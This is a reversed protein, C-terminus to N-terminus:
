IIEVKAKYSVKFQYADNNAIGTLDRNTIKEGNFWLDGKSYYDSIEDVQRHYYDHVLYDGSLGTDIDISECDDSLDCIFDIYIELFAWIDVIGYVKYEAKEVSLNTITGSSVIIVPELVLWQTGIELSDVRSSLEAIDYLITGETEVPNIQADLADVQNQLGTFGDLLQYNETTSIRCSITKGITGSSCWEGVQVSFEGDISTFAEIDTNWYLPDGNLVTGDCLIDAMCDVFIDGSQGIAVQEKPIGLFIKRGATNTVIVPQQITFNVETNNYRFQPLTPDTINM